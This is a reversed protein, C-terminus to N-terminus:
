TVLLFVLSYSVGLNHGLYFFFYNFLMVFCTFVAGHWDISAYSPIAVLCVICWVCSPIIKLADGALAQANARDMRRPTRGAKTSLFVLRTGVLADVLGFINASFGTKTDLAYTQCVGM